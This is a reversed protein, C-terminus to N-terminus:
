AARGAGLADALLGLYRCRRSGAMAFIDGESWHYHFALLHVQRFLQTSSRAIEQLVYEGADLLAQFAAGCRPCAADLLVEAQPDLEAMRCPLERIVAPPLGDVGRGDTAEVSRVCRALVERAAREPDAAALAAAPELDGGNPLRFRVALAAEGEGVQVAYEEAGPPYSPLLLAGISLDLDLKEACHPCSLVCSLPDGLTIRRLHLLLAERDGVTLSRAFAAGVPEGDGQLSLCRALLATARAAPALGRAEEQLFLEDQGTWPRLWV